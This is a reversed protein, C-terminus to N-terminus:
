ASLKYLIEGTPRTPDRLNVVEGKHDIFYFADSLFEWKGPWPRPPLIEWAPKRTAMRKFAFRQEDYIHYFMTPVRRPLLVVGVASELRICNFNGLKQRLANVMEVSPAMCLVSSPRAM